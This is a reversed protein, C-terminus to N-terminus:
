GRNTPFVGSFPPLFMVPLFVVHVSQVTEGLLRMQRVLPAHCGPRIQPVQEELLNHHRLLPKSKLLPPCRLARGDFCLTSPSPSVFLTYITRSISKDRCTSDLSGTLAVLSSHISTGGAM